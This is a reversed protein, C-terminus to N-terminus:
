KTPYVSNAWSGGCIEASDASCPATCHDAPGYTGFRAGCYCQGGHQVGAYLYGLTGCTTRCSEITAHATIAQYPLDRAPKDEFCGVYGALNMAHGPAAATSPTKSKLRTVLLTGAVGLAALVLVGIAVRGVRSRRASSPASATGGWAQETGEPAPTPQEHPDVATTTTTSDRPTDVPRAFPELAKAIEGMSTFRYERTPCLARSVIEELKLPLAPALERLPRLEDANAGSLLEHAVVGWAYQDARGDLPEARLQEPSMYRPTGRVYGPMTHLTQAKSPSTNKAIGFDYVKVSGDPCVMVNSPKVDRHVVGQEHVAELASAIQALWRVRQELSVGKGVLARLPTGELLEMVLFPVGSPTVGVEHVTVVNPHRVQAAARAERVLLKALSPSVEEEGEAAAVLKLAVSRHLNPDHARYVVGNGGRGLLAEIRFSGILAGPEVM